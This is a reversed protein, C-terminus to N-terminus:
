IKFFINCIDLTRSIRCEPFLRLRSGPYIATAALMSESGDNQDACWTGFGIRVNEKQREEEKKGFRGKRNFIRMM